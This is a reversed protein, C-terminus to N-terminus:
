CWIFSHKLHLMKSTEEEIKLGNHQYFSGEQQQICNQWMLELSLKVLVYIKYKLKYEVCRPHRVQFNYRQVYM